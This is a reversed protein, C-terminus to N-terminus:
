RILASGPRRRGILLQEYEELILLVQDSPSLFANREM